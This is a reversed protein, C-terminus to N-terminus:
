TVIIQTTFKVHTICGIHSAQGKGHAAARVAPPAAEHGSTGAAPPQVADILASLLLPLIERVAAEPTSPCYHLLNLINVTQVFFWFTVKLTTSVCALAKLM